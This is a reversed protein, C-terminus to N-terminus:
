IEAIEDDSMGALEGLLARAREIDWEIKNAAGRWASPMIHVILARVKAARGPQTTAPISMVRDCLADTTEFFEDLEVIAADRGSEQDFACALEWSVHVLMEFRDQLPDIQTQRFQKAEAARRVIEASLAIIEADPESCARVAAPVALLASAAAIARFAARRNLPEAM